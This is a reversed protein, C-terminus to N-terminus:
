ATLNQPKEKAMTIFYMEMIYNTSRKMVCEKNVETKTVTVNIWDYNQGQVFVCISEEKSLYLVTFKAHITIDLVITKLPQKTNMTLFIELFYTTTVSNTPKTNGEQSRFFQIM